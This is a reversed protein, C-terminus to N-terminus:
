IEIFFLCFLLIIKFISYILGLVLFNSFHQKPLSFVIFSLWFDISKDQYFTNYTLVTNIKCSNFFGM